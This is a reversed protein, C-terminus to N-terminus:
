YQEIQGPPPVPAPTAPAASDPQPPRAYILGADSPTTTLERQQSSASRRRTPAPSPPPAAKAILTQAEEHAIRRVAAEDLVPAPPPAIAKAFAVHDSGATTASYADSGGGSKSAGLYLGIAACVLLALGAFRSLYRPLPQM